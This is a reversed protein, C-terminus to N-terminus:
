QASVKGRAFAYIFWDHLIINKIKEWNKNVCAQLSLALDQTLVYTCGPGAAEFLFDWKKQSQAKDIIKERGSPWFPTVNSSYADCKNIKLAKVAEIM